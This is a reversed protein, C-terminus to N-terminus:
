THQVGLQGHVPALGNVLPVFRVPWLQEIEFGHKRRRVRAMWQEERDEGIPLVMVGGVALQNALRAPLDTAAATVIIRDFPAQEPWGQSGDGVIATVNRCGLEDFRREADDLLPRHREITYVRRFLGALVATHYGCGTGIELVKKREDPELAQSMRAVVLPRSVTQGCGIPLAVDAYAEHGFAVPVFRERPVKEIAAIVGHDTVGANRLQLVLRIKRSATTMTEGDGIFGFAVLRKLKRNEDCEPRM